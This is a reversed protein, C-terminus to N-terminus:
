HILVLETIELCPMNEGNEDETIKSNAIRLLKLTKPM